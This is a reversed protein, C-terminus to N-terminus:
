LYMCLTIEAVNIKLLSCKAIVEIDILHLSAQYLGTSGFPRYGHFHRPSHVHLFLTWVVSVLSFLLSDFLM